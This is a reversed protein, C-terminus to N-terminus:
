LKFGFGVGIAIPDYKVSSIIQNGAADTAFSQNYKIKTKLMYRKVDLNLYTDDKFVLDVGMQLVPGSSNNIKYNSTRSLMFTYHYGGGVYPRIAGYPAVHYQIAVSSPIAVMDRAKPLKAPNNNYSTTVNRIITAKQRYNTAGSTFEGAIFDNWFIEFSAEGGVATSFLKSVNKTHPNEKSYNTYPAPLGSQKGNISNFIGRFKLVMNESEEAKASSAIFIGSILAAQIIKKM